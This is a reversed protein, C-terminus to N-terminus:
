SLIEYSYQMHLSMSNSLLMSMFMYLLHSRFIKLYEVLVGVVVTSYVSLQMIKKKDYGIFPLFSLFGLSNSFNRSYDVPGSTNCNRPCPFYTNMSLNSYFIITTWCSCSCLCDFRSLSLMSPLEDYTSSWHYAVWHLLFLFDQVDVQSKIWGMNSRYCNYFFIIILILGSGLLNISVVNWGLM